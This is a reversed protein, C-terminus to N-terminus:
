TARLPVGVAVLPFNINASPRAMVIPAPATAPSDFYNADDNRGKRVREARIEGGHAMVLNRAITLGLGSGRSGHGKYFRDFIRPLDEAPDGATIASLWFSPV